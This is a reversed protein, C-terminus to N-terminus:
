GREGIRVISTDGDVVVGIAVPATIATGWSRVWQGGGGADSLYLLAASSFGRRLPVTEGTSLTLALVAEGALDIVGVSAACRELWGDPVECWSHFHAGQPEGTFRRDAVPSVDLRGAVARLLADAAAARDGEAAARAIRGGDDALQRLLARAGMLVVAAVLLAVMVEVLTFGASGRAHTTM